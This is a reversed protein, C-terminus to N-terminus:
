GNTRCGPAMLWWAPLPDGETGAINFDIVLEMSYVSDMSAALSFSPFLPFEPIDSTCGYPQNNFGGGLPPACDRWAISLGAGASPRTALCAALLLCALARRIPLRSPKM